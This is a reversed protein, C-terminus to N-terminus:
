TLEIQILQPYFYIRDAHTAVGLIQIVDDTGTPKTQSMTNGTTGTITGYILGGVTWNWADNRAIGLALYVGDADASISGTAMFLGSMSSIADADILQAQGDSNIYCVDGFAHNENANLTIKIGSVSVDSPTPSLTISSPAPVWKLGTTQTSDAELHYGDTGVALRDPDTGDHTQIDGKNTVSVAVLDGFEVDYDDNSAKKLVQGTTGGTPVGSGNTGKNGTRSFIISIPDDSAFSGYHTVYTVGIKRYGTGDTISGTINFIAIDNSGIKKIIITGKLATNTSDDWTDIFASIDAPDSNENDIYIETVSSLTANNLRIKGAGPDSDTIETNFAYPMGENLGNLGDEGNEGNVGAEGQLGTPGIEGKYKKWLGAFDSAQPSVIPSTTTKVAIYDLSTNFTTTFGTGADDVAYAIYVYSDIGPNGQEGQIGQGGKSALLAWYSANPPENNISNAICVYSSGDNDVIDGITYATLASWTGKTLENINKDAM